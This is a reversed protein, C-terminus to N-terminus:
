GRLQSKKAQADLAQQIARQVKPDACAEQLKKVDEPNIRVRTTEYIMEALVPFEPVLIGLLHNHLSDGHVYLQQIIPSTAYSNEIKELAVYEGQSLKM